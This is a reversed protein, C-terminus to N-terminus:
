NAAGGLLLHLLPFPLDAYPMCVVHLVCLFYLVHRACGPSPSVLKDARSEKNRGGCSKEVNIRRGHLVSHHLSLCEHLQEANSLQVFASGRSHASNDRETLLRVQFGQAATNIGNAHLHKTIEESTTKYSLQGIFVVYPTSSGGAESGRKRKAGVAAAEAEEVTPIGLIKHATTAGVLTHLEDVSVERAGSDAKGELV